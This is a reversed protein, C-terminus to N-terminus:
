ATVIRRFMRTASTLSLGGVVLITLFAYGVITWDWGTIILGHLADAIYTLPNYVAVAQVWEPLLPKPLMATSLFLLPFSTIISIMMTSESNKTGLAIVNSIGSWAIGFLAAILVLLLFGPVGTAVTVGFLVAIGFIILTQIVIRFADSLIKGLLISSRHIPAVRMRDLFGSEMDQVMGMGSQMASSIITQIIVATSFFTVYSSTGTMAAFGPINAISSFSQAFLVFWV